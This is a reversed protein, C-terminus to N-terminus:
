VGDVVSEGVISWADKYFEFSFNDPCPAKDVKMAMFCAVIESRTIERQLMCYDEQEIRCSTIMDLWDKKNITSNQEAFLGKYFNIATLKVHEYEDIMRGQDDEIRTILNRSQNVRMSNHFLKTNADEDKYWSIRSKSRCFEWETKCLKNYEVGLNRSKTLLESNVDGAMIHAQAAEWENKIEIVRDSINSYVEKNLTRLKSKISKLINHLIYM